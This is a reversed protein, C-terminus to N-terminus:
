LNSHAYQECDLDSVDPVDIAALPPTGFTERFGEALQVVSLIIDHQVCLQQDNQAAIAEVQRRNIEAVTRNTQITVIATLAFTAIATVALIAFLRDRLRAWQENNRLANM